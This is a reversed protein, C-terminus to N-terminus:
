KFAVITYAACQRVTVGTAPLIRDIIWGESALEALREDLAAAASKAYNQENAFPGLFIKDHDRWSVYHVAYQKGM